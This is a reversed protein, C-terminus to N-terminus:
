LLLRYAEVLVDPGPRFDYRPVREFGLREYMARAVTMPATTHLGLAPVEHERAREICADTLIRGVRLGRADPRVGLLRFVSWEEPWRESTGDSPYSSKPGPPFYSVCGLMHGGREVVILESDPARGELDLIDVIYHEWNAPPFWSSYEEYSARLVARADDFDEEGALRVDIESM